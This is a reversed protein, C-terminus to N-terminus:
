LGIKHYAFATLTIALADTTDDYKPITELKLLMKVMAQVQKKDAKGYGCIATKVELPAFEMLPIKNQAALYILIGRAEAVKFATKQNKTFYIKELAIADPNQERIIKKIGSGIALLRKEYATNNYTELCGLCEVIYNNGERSIVSYGLRGFGPDIGLIKTHAAM